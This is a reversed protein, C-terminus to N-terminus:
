HCGTLAPVNVDAAAYHLEPAFLAFKRQKLAYYLVKPTICSRMVNIDTLAYCNSILDEMISATNRRLMNRTAPDMEADSNRGPLM